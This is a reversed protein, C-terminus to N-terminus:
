TETSALEPRCAHLMYSHTHASARAHACVRVLKFFSGKFIKLLVQDVSSKPISEIKTQKFKLKTSYSTNLHM